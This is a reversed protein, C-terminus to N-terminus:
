KISTKLRNLPTGRNRERSKKIDIRLYIKGKLAMATEYARFLNASNRKTKPTLGDM